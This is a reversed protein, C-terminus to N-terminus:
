HMPRLGLVIGLVTFLVLATLLIYPYYRKDIKM